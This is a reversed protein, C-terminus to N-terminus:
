RAMERAWAAAPDAGPVAPVDYAVLYAGGDRSSRPAPDM